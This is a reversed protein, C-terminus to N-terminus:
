AGVQLSARYSNFDMLQVVQKIKGGDFQYLVHEPFRVSNGTPAVGAFDQVPKGTLIVRAAIQQKKEDVVTEVLEWKLGEISAKAGEIKGLYEELSVEKSNLTMSSHCFKSLSDATPGQQVCDVYAKYTALLDFGEPAPNAATMSAAVKYDVGEGKSLAAMDIITYNKYVKGDKVWFFSAEAFEVPNGTAKVGL